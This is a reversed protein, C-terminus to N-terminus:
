TSGTAPTHGEKGLDDAAQIDVAWKDSAAAIIADRTLTPDAAQQEAIHANVAKVIDAAAVGLAPNAIGAAVPIFQELTKWISM